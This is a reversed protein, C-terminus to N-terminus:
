YIDVTTTAKTEPGIANNITGPAILQMMDIIPHVDYCSHTGM